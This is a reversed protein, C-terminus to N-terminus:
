RGFALVWADIETQDSAVIWQEFDERSARMATIMAGLEKGSLAPRLAQVRKGSFKARLVEERATLAHEAALQAPLDAEAFADCVQAFLVETAPPDWRKDVEHARLYAVFRSVTSRVSQRHDMPGDVGDLYPRVSFYPSAIVWGFLEELSAFGREWHAFDLGFFPLIKSWDQSLALDARYSGNPRRYVYHLGGEGYILGFRKAMRGIFNGVDNFSLYAHTADLQAAPVAFFDTQLGRYDCSFVHGVVKHETVGLAAAIALRRTSWDPVSAVLVDMDGFDSKDAYYRPIRYAGALERDLYARVERERELYDARPMRPLNFLKGGM